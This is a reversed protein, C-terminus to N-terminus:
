PSSSLETSTTLRAGRDCPCEFLPLYELTLLSLLVLDGDGVKGIVAAGDDRRDRDLGIGVGM